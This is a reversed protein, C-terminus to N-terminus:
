RDIVQEFVRRANGGMVARVVEESHGRARLGEAVAQWDAPSKLGRPLFAIGDFDSGLAIHDPGAVEIVHEIHDLYTEVTLEHGAAALGEEVLQRRAIRHAPSGDGHEERLSELKDENEEQVADRAESWEQSLYACYANIGIVGGNEALARLLDDTVNRPHDSLARCCSHSIMVPDTTVELTDYFTQDSVHSLDIVWGLRNMERVIERGFETLGMQPNDKDTSSGAWSLNNMWTLTMGRVGLDHFTQLMAPDENIPAGGEIVLWAAIKGDANIERAEAVTQALAIEEQHRAVQQNFVGIKQLARSTADFGILDNSNVWVAFVQDSVGGTRMRGLSTHTWDTEDSLDIGHDISRLLIDSHLDMAPVVAAVAAASILTLACLVTLTRM